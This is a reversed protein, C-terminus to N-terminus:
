ARPRRHRASVPVPAQAAAAVAVGAAARAAAPAVAPVAAAAPAAAGRGAAAVAAAAPNCWAATTEGAVAREMTMAAYLSAAKFGNLKEANECRVFVTIRIVTTGNRIRQVSPM